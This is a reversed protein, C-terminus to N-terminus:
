FIWYLFLIWVDIYGTLHKRLVKLAKSIQTEVTRKSLELKDAIEQNTIGEFRSMEFIRKCQGPLEKVINHIKQELETEQLKDEVFAEDQKKDQYINSHHDRRIQSHKLQNLCRNRVSQYLHAKLSSHIKIDKRKEYFTVFVDQVLDRALDDDLVVKRAFVVLQAYYQHFLQKYADERGEEIGKILWNDDIEKIM